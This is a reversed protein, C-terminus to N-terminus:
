VEITFEFGNCKQWSMEGYFYDEKNTGAQLAMQRYNDAMAAILQLGQMVTKCIIVKSQYLQPCILIWLSNSQPSALVKLNM